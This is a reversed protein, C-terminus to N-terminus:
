TNKTTGYIVISEWPTNKKYLITDSIEFYKKAIDLWWESPKVCTHLIEGDILTENETLCIKIFIRKGVRAFESFCQDIEEAPIHEMCDFSIVLDFSDDEIPLDHASAIIDANECSCDLGTSKEIGSKKLDQVMENHGCGIDLISEPKLSLIKNLYSKGENSHGYKEWKLKFENNAEEWSSTGLSKKTLQGKKQYIKDYKYVEKGIKTKM